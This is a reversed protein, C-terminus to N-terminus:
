YYVNSLILGCPPAPILLTNKQKAELMTQLLGADMVGLGAEIIGATIMRIMKYLFGNGRFIMKIVDHDNHLEISSITRVTSKKKSTVKCFSKFDHKGVFVAAAERMAEMDLKERVHHYFRRKFVDHYSNNDIHYIYKKGVANFRAHFDPEVLEVKKVVIDQPLYTYCYEQIEDPTLKSETRFNATQNRAHVGADTRGAGIIAVETETMKSLVQEIKGQITNESNGQKQWGSYRSGDYEITLKVNKMM